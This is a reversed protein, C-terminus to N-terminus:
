NQLSCCVARRVKLPLLTIPLCFVPSAGFVGVGLMFYCAVIGKEERWLHLHSPTMVDTQQWAKCSPYAPTKLTTCPNKHWTKRLFWSNPSFSVYSLRHIRSMASKRSTDCSTHSSIWVNNAYQWNLGVASSIWIFSSDSCWLHLHCSAKSSSSHAVSEVHALAALPFSDETKLEELALLLHSLESYNRLHQLPWLAGTFSLAPRASPNLPLTTTNAEEM